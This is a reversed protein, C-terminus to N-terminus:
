RARAASAWRWWRWTAPSTAAWGCRRPWPRPPWPRSASTPWTPSPAAPASPRPRDREDGARRRPLGTRPAPPPGRGHGGRFRRRAAVAREMDAREATITSRPSSTRTSCPTSRPPGGRWRTPWSPRSPWSRCSWNSCGPSPWSCPSSSFARRCAASSSRLVPQLRHGARRHGPCAELLRPALRTFLERGRETRTAAFAATTGPASPRPRRAAPRLLGNTQPDGADGPRRRRRHVGPQRLPVVADGGRRVARRLPRQGGEPHPHRAADFSRLRSTARRAGRGAAADADSEPLRHTQEDDLM